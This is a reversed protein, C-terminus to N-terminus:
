TRSTEVFLALAAVIVGAVAVLFVVKTWTETTIATAPRGATRLREALLVSLVCLLSLAFFVYFAYEAAITYGISGLQNNIASLLVAGSLAATVAVTVKEKVLGHPFYLSAFMIVTMIILPLLAKSAIALARRQLTVNVIFGSLERAREAGFQAPYGLPSETVLNERLESAAIPQWQSLERFAIPSVVSASTEAATAAHASLGGDGATPALPQLGGGRLSGRDLVYVVRNADARSNFFALRMVQRDFPFLRLDFDNRFEGDVHWLRYVTGDPMSREESPTARNFTGSIVGSFRIDTPDFTNPGADPAFRMWLYFDASFSARSMDVRPMENIFVGTYVVRQRRVFRGPIAEFVEGSALEEPSPTGVPVLQIPASDFLGDHFLGIRVAQDRRRERTFWLPGTVGPLAATPRDLSRLYDLAVARRAARADPEDSTEPGARLAAEIALRASDYGQVAPWSPDRGYRKRFRDVFALTDANASDFLIPSAAYVKETFFGKQTAEEPEKAFEGVFDEGGIASPALVPSTIGQRRLSVLIPVADSNLMGLAIAPRDPDSGVAQIAAAREADNSFGRRDVPIALLPATREFGDAFPEGYGDRRYLVIAHHGNLVYKLYIAMAAGMEGGNFVPQFTTAPRPVDDGHATAPISVLGCEAYAPGAVLTVTTLAPGVVAVAPSDCIERAVDRARTSSSQDDVERLEIKVSRGASNAEEVALRAGDLIPLGYYNGPGTLSLAAVIEVTKEDALAASVHGAAVALLALLLRRPLTLGSGRCFRSTWGDVRKVFRSM